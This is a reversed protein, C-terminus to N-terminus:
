KTLVMKKTAVYSGAQLRYIYTGSALGSANFVFSYRGAPMQENALTAVERGLMDYVKLTVLEAKATEFRITTAPNFPNPYNQDLAYTTPQTEEVGTAIDIRVPDSYHVQGDFDLQKLRYNWQGPSVTNDVYSYYQPETTTGHGPILDSIQVWETTGVRQRQVFFGYNNIESITGWELLASRCILQCRVRFYALQIPLYAEPREDAGIYPAQTDRVQDDIDTTYTAIPTGRLDPDGISPGSLHLDASSVFTVNKSKANVDRPGGLGGSAVAAQHDALTLFSTAGDFTIPKTTGPTGAFYLNFDTTSALRLLNSNATAYLVPSIGTTTSQLNILINNRLDVSATGVTSIHLCASRHAAATPPATNDIFVSNYYVIFSAGGAANQLDIGRTGPTSTSRPSRLDSIMNNYIKATTPTGTSMFLGIGVARSTTNGNTVMGYIQNNYIQFETNNAVNNSAIGVAFGSTVGAGDNVLYRITNNRIIITGSNLNTASSAPNFWIGYINNTTMIAADIYQITNNEITLNAQCDMELARIDSGTGSPISVSGITCNTIVNGRDPNTGSIGFNKWAARWFGTITCNEIRNYSTGKSTDTETSSSTFYRLGISGTHNIGTTTRMDITLNKFTNFRGGSVMLGNLQSNGLFVGGEFKLAVSTQGNDILSLGQITTYQTGDMRIIADSSAAAGTTSTGSGNRPTLTVTAGTANKLTITNIASTGAVSILHFIDDYTGNAVELVVSGAIGHVNLAMAADSLGSYHPTIGGVQYTGAALPSPTVPTFTMTTGADPANAIGNFTYGMSEHYQRSGATGGVNISYFKGTASGASTIVTNDALGISASGATPTGAVSYVFEIINTGEYLKLSFEMNATAATKNWKVNKWSVTLAQSGSSGSHAYTIDATTASVALDDWLPAIISRLTGALADAATASTLGTGLRIFGNTSAQFQTFATGAFTFAAGDAFINTANSYEEDNATTTNWTFPNGPTAIVVPGTTWSFNYNMQAFSAPTAILAAALLVLLRYNASMALDKRLM